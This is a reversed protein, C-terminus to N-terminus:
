AARRTHGIASRRLPLRAQLWKRVPRWLTRLTPTTVMRPAQPIEESNKTIIFGVSTCVYRRALLLKLHQDDSYPPLDVIKDLPMDGTDFVFPEITHGSATLNTAMREMDRRRFLVVGRYDVTHTNSSVTFETTHVAIGGPKLCALANYVFQEGRALSGLHELSCASWVFDFDRLDPSISNMDMYRFAVRRSFEDPDCLGRDNLMALDRAHQGSDVWGIETARQVDLDTATIECGHAAFLAALPEQGVAFGLGRRGPRLMGREQLGQAIYCWEWIKRHLRGTREGMRAAWKQFAVSQL